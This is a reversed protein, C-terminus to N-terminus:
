LFTPTKLNYFHTHKWNLHAHGGFNEPASRAGMWLRVGKGFDQIRGQDDVDYMCFKGDEDACEVM